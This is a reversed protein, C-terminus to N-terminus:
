FVSGGGQIRPLFTLLSSIIIGCKGTSDVAAAAKSRAGEQLPSARVDGVATLSAAGAPLGDWGVPISMHVFFTRVIIEPM